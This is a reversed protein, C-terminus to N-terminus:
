RFRDRSIYTIGPQICIDSYALLESATLLQFGQSILEPVLMEVAQATSEVMDHMLVIAGDHVAEMVREFTTQACRHSWDQPDVSWYLTAKGIEGLIAATTANQAGYPPRVFVPRIGVLEYIADSVRETDNILGYRSMSTILRHNWTHGAIENGLSVARIIIHSRPGIFRGVVCFTARAGHQELVDLIKETAPGPGDDFTLAIMPAHPNIHPHPNLRGGRIRLEGLIVACEDITFWDRGLGPAVYVDGNITIDRLTVGPSRIIVNGDIEGSYTGVQNFFGKFMSDILMMLEARTIDLQPRIFSGFLNLYGRVQMGQVLTLAGASIQTSDRFPSDTRSTPIEFVRALAVVADERTLTDEFHVDAWYTWIQCGHCEFCSDAVLGQGCGTLRSILVAFEAHNITDNPRFLGDSGRLVGYKYWREIAAQGPHGGIDDFIDSHPAIVYGGAIVGNYASTQLTFTFLCLCLLCAVIRKIM